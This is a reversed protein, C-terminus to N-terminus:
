FRTKAHFKEQRIVEFEYDVKAEQLLLRIQEGKGRDPFYTLKPKEEM